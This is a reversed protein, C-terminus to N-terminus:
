KEGEPPSSPTSTIPPSKDLWPAPFFLDAFSEFGPVGIIDGLKSMDHRAQCLNTEDMAHTALRKQLWSSDDVLKQVDAVHFEVSDEGSRRYLPRTVRYPPMIRPPVSSPTFSKPVERGVISWIWHLCQNRRTNLTEFEKLLIRLDALVRVKTPDLAVFKLIDEALRKPNVNDTVIPGKEGVLGAHKWYIMHLDQEILATVVALNGIAQLVEPLLGTDWRLIFPPRDPLTMKHDGSSDWVALRDICLRPFAAARLALAADRV